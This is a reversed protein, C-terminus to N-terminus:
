HHLPAAPVGAWTQGSPISMTVCAGAGIVADDGIIIPKDQIGNIIVAGTGISVRKGCRVCGSIHVGPALTVYDDLVVDHGITCSLRIQVHEGLLINTTFINGACIVAGIGMRIWKSMEVRPHVVTGFNFGYLAAKKMLTERIKPNGIGGIVKADAYREAAQELGVIPIGNLDTGQKKEDDDIFCVVIRNDQCSEVLWAVERGFGSAGYIAIAETNM